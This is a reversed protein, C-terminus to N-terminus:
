TCQIYLVLNNRRTIYHLQQLTESSGAAEIMIICYSKFRGIRIAARVFAYTQLRKIASVAPEFGAPVMCTRRNHTDHLYRGRRSASLKNLPTRGHTHTHTNHRIPHSISVKVVPFRLRLQVSRWPLSHTLTKTLLRRSIALYSIMLKKAHKGIFQSISIHLYTYAQLV